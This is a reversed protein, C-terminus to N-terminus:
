QSKVALFIKLEAFVHAKGRKEFEKRLRTEVRGLLTLAWQKEFLSEPTENDAPHQLYRGEADAFDISLPKNGGGRKQARDKDRENNLFNRVSALLFSRFRGLEPNANGLDQRQLIDAFFAQTVDAAANSDLGQRRVFSYLPYWYQQCLEQLASNAIDSDEAGAERIMSWCTTAFDHQKGATSSNGSSM